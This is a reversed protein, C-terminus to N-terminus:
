NARKGNKQPEISLAAFNESPQTNWASTECNSRSPQSHNDGGFKRRCEKQPEESTLVHFIEFILGITRIVTQKGPSLNFHLHTKVYPSRRRWTIRYSAEKIYETKSFFFAMHANPRQWIRPIFCFPESFTRQLNQNRMSKFSLFLVFSM